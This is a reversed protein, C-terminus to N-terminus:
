RRHQPYTLNLELENAAGKVIDPIDTEYRDGVFRGAPGALSISAVVRGKVRVPAAVVRMGEISEGEATAYGRERIAALEDRLVDPDTITRDTRAELGRALIADIRDEPLHALIAKGSAVCHIPAREGITLDTRISQEGETGYVFVAEGDEEVFCAALEGTEAALDDVKSTVDPFAPQRRLADTGYELFRLGIRYECNEKVVFGAEVLTNLYVQVTSKPRDLDAALGTVTGPGTERLHALIDFAAAVSKLVNSQDTM